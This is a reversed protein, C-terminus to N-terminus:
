IDTAKRIAERRFVIATRSPLYLYLHVQTDIINREAKKMSRYEIRRDIRNSGGFTADDTDMVVRFRGAVPIGYGTYSNVPHFNFVLLFSGRTFAVVKDTNNEYIRATEASNLIRFDNQLGTM